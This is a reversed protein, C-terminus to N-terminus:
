SRGCYCQNKGIQAQLKCNPCEVTKLLVSHSHLFDVGVEDKSHFNVIFDRYNYTCGSCVSGMVAMTLISVIKYAVRGVPSVYIHM